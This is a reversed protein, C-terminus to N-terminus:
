ILMVKPKYLEEEKKYIAIEKKEYLLFLYEEKSDIAIASGNKVKDYENKNLFYHKIPLVDSAKLLTYKKKKIDEISYADEIRFNGQKIRTLKSMTGLCNLKKTIDRILSRIYTGKSVLSRFTITDADNELLEMEYIHVTKIPLKVEEKNRAYEYLKKGNVKIASYKPVEMEYLGIFKDFVKLIEEKTPYSFSTKLVEGTIDLTDTQIGLKIQAIYEKTLSSFIDVLKTYKGVCIVLVGTALPDLTGTHGVKKEGLEHSIINVVDRSTYGEEKNVVILGSLIRTGGAAM